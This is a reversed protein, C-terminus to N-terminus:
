NDDKLCLMFKIEKNFAKKVEASASSKLLKVAVWKTIATSNSNGISLYQDHIM